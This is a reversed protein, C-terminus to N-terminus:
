VNHSLATPLRVLSARVQDPSSPRAFHVPQPLQYMASPPPFETVGDDIVTATRTSSMMMPGDPSSRKATSGIM